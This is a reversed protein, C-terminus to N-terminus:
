KAPCSGDAQQYPCNIQLNGPMICAQWAKMATDICSSWDEVKSGYRDDCYKRDNSQQLDCEAFKSQASATGLAGLFIMGTYFIFRIIM